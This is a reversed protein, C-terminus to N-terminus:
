SDVAVPAYGNARLLELTEAAPRGSALVGAALLRLGLPRLGRHAVVEALLAPDDAVVCCGVGVVTLEGHRRAVDRVLYELPQPVGDGSVDALAALLRDATHGADLARRVSAPSFRWVSATDREGADAVLDLLAALEATPVGPVVATLDAQLRASGTAPPLSRELADLVDGAPGTVLAAGWSSLRGGAIVGLSEAEDVTAEVIASEGYAYPKWWAMLEVLENRDAIAGGDIGACWGVLDHRLARDDDDYAHLLATHQKGRRDPATPAAPLQWWTMLLPLLREAPSGALWVDVAPTPLIGADDCDLLDAHYALTLWFRVSREAASLTKALRRIEKVGVGGSRLPEIPTVSCLEILRTVGHVAPLAAAGALQDLSASDAPVIRPEPPSAHWEDLHGGRARAVRLPEVLEYADGDVPWMLGLGTLEALARVVADRDPQHTFRGVIADVTIGGPVSQAAALVEVLGRNLGRVVRTVSEEGALRDALENLSSPPIGLTDPRRAMLAALTDADLSALWHAMSDTTVM